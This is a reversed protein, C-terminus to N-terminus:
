QITQSGHLMLPDIGMSRFAKEWMKDHPTNFLLETTIDHTFWAGTSVENELQSSGWGSSGIFVYFDPEGVESLERLGELTFSLSIFENIKITEEWDYQSSHVFCVHDYGVPGGLLVRKDSPGVYKIKLTSLFETMTTELPRNIAVGFAGKENHEVMLVVSQYFNPDKLEPSAILVGPAFFDTVDNNDM